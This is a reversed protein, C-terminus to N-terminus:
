TASARLNENKINSAFLLANSLVTKERQAERAAVVHGIAHRFTTLVADCYRKRRTTVHSNTEALV